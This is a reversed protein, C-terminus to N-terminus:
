RIGPLEVSSGLRLCNIGTRVHLDRKRFGTKANVEWIPNYRLTWMSRKEVIGVLIRIGKEYQGLV